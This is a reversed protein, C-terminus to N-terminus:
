AKVAVANFLGVILENSKNAASIDQYGQIHEDLTPKGYKIIFEDHIPGTSLRKVINANYDASHKSDDTYIVNSFGADSLMTQYSKPTLAFLPLSETEILTQISPVWADEVPSLWDGIMLNGGPKLIRHFEKLVRIKEPKPLHVIVGRCFISDFSADAFPLAEGEPALIFELHDLNKENKRRTSEEILYPNIEAGVVHAGHKVALHQAVGGLGSGFDLVKKGQLNLNSIMRDASNLGEGMLSDGYALEIMHCYDKNYTQNLETM